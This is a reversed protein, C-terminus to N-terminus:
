RLMLLHVVLMTIVSPVEWPHIHHQHRLISPHRLRQYMVPDPNVVVLCPVPLIVITQPAIDVDETVDNMYGPQEDYSQDRGYIFSRRRHRPSYSRCRPSRSYSQGRPPEQQIIVPPVPHHSPSPSRSYGGHVMVLGPVMGPALLPAMVAPMASMSPPYM